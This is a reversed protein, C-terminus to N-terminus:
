AIVDGTGTGPLTSSGPQANPTATVTEVEAFGIIEKIIEDALLIMLARLKTEDGGVPASPLCTLVADAMANGLRDKNMAM